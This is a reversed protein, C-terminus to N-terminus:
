LCTLFEVFLLFLHCFSVKPPLDLCVEAKTRRLIYPVLAEHLLPIIEKDEDQPEDSLLSSNSENRKVKVSTKDPSLLQRVTSISDAVSFSCFFSNFVSFQCFIIM